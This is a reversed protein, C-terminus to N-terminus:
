GQAEVTGIYGQVVGFIGKERHLHSGRQQNRFGFLTNLITNITFHFFKSATYPNNAIQVARTHADPGATWDFNDLDIEAGTFVQALPDHTDTLNITLWISPPGNMVCIGWIYSRINIRSEDTEMVKARVATLHRKLSTVVPNSHPKKQDEESSALKLDSPKLM